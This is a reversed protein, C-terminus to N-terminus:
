FLSEQNQPFYTNMVAHYDFFTEFCEYIGTLEDSSAEVEGNYTYVKKPVKVKGQAFKVGLETPRWLGSHKVKIDSSARREVLGWWPLTPLQNSRLVRTHGSNPVDVWGEDNRKAGCLWILSYAMTSNISRAYIKGWRNCVPCYGGEHEIIERWRIKEEIM